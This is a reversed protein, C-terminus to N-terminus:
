RKGEQNERRCGTETEVNCHTKDNKKYLHLIQSMLNLLIDLMRYPIDM